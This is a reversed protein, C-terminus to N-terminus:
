HFLKVIEHYFSPIRGYTNCVFLIDHGLLKLYM